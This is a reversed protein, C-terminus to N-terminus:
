GDSSHTPTTNPMNLAKKRNVCIDCNPHQGFSRAFRICGCRNLCRLFTSFSPEATDQAVCWAQLELHLHIPKMVGLYRTPGWSTGPGMTVAVNPEHSSSMHLACAAIAREEQEQIDDATLDTGRSIHTQCGMSAIARSNADLREFSFKDPLGEADFHYKRWLLRLRTAM